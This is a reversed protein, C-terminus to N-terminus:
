WDTHKIGEGLFFSEYLRQQSVWWSLDSKWETNKFLVILQRYTDNLMKIALNNAFRHWLHGWNGPDKNIIPDISYEGQYEESSFKEIIQFRYAM